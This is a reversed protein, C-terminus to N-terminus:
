KAKGFDDKVRRVVKQFSEPRQMPHGAVTKKVVLAVVVVPCIIAVISFSM